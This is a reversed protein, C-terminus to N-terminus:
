YLQPMTTLYGYLCIPKAQFFSVTVHLGMALYCSHLCAVTSCSNSPFLETSVTNVQCRSFLCSHFIRQTHPGHSPQNSYRWRLGALRLLRRFAFGTGPSIVPGGQEQPIYIRPGSVGPPTLRSNSVTFHLWSNWPVRVQFHSRQRPGAAITYSLGM